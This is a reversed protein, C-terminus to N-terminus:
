FTIILEKKYKDYMLIHDLDIEMFYEQPDYDFSLYMFGKKIYVTDYFITSIKKGRSNTLTVANYHMMEQTIKNKDIIKNFM